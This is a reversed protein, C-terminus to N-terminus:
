GAPLASVGSREIPWDPTVWPQFFYDVDVDLADCISLMVRADMRRSGEEFEYLRDTALDLIAALYARDLGRKERQARLRAGIIRDIQVTRLM